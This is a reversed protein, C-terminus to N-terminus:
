SPEGEGQDDDGVYDGALEDPDGDEGSCSARNPDTAALQDPEVGEPLVAVQELGNDEM